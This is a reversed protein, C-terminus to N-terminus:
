LTRFTKPLFGTFKKFNRSFHSQDSFGCQYSINSLTLKSNKILEISNSIKLKRMYEGYTCYFYKKFCKSITVSHVGLISSLEDLSIQEQWRDNLIEHLLNVWKPKNDNGLDFSIHVLNNVLSEISISSVVDNTHIEQLLKLAYIKADISNISLMIQENSLLGESFYKTEFEINLNQSFKKRCVTKHPQKAPYFFVDGAKRMYSKNDRYEIDGGKYVFTIISNKHSHYEGEDQGVEFQTTSVFMKDLQIGKNIIGTYCHKELLNPM